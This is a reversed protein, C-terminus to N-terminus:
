KPANMFQPTFIRIDSLFYIDRMFGLSKFSIMADMYPKTEMTLLTGLAYGVLVGAEM